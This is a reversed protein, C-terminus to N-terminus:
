ARNRRRLAAAMLGLGGLLLAVNEPEPVPQTVASFQWTNQNAALDNGVPFNAMNTSLVFAQGGSAATAPLAGNIYFYNSVSSQGAGTSVDTDAIVFNTQAVNSSFTPAITASALGSSDQGEILLPGNFAIGNLSLQVDSINSMAFGNATASFSGTMVIPNGDGTIDSAFTPDFTYSFNFTTANAAISGLAIAATLAVKNLLKM